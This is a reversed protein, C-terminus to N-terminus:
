VSVTVGNQLVTRAQALTRGSKVLRALVKCFGEADEDTIPESLNDLMLRVTATKAGSVSFTLHNGGSCIGTLQITLSAM